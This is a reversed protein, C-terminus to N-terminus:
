DCSNVVTRLRRVVLTSLTLGLDHITAFESDVQFAATRHAHLLEHGDVALGRVILGGASVIPMPEQRRGLSFMRTRNGDDAGYSFGWTLRPSRRKRPNAVTVSATSPIALTRYVHLM